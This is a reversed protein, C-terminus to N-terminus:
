KKNKWIKGQRCKVVAGSAYASPWEDYAQKALRTCRDDKKKKSAELSLSKSTFKNRLSLLKELYKNRRLLKFTINEYSYEGGKELGSRRFKKIKDKLYQIDKIKQDDGKDSALIADIRKEIEKAKKLVKERDINIKSKAPEVLWMNKSISYIGSSTHTEQTDQVYLEVDYGKVKINFTDNWITKKSDFLKKLLEKDFGLKSFDILIHLDVDSYESWNYNALSGTLTIDEVELSMELFDLFKNAIVVLRDRVQDHMRNDNGFIKPSLSDKILFTNLLEKNNASEKRVKAKKTNSVFQKGSRGAKKKKRATAARESKTLSKAKAKPLCRDPNKKNKSTGCPGAINGATTIRVWNEKEFWKHLSNENM